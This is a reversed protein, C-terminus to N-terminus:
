GSKGLIMGWMAPDMRTFPKEEMSKSYLNMLAANKVYQSFPTVLCPTGLM